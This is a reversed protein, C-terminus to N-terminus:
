TARVRTVPARRDAVYVSGKSDIHGKYLLMEPHQELELNTKILLHRERAIDPSFINVYMVQKGKFLGIYEFCRFMELYETLLDFKWMMYDRVPKPLKKAKSNHNNRKFFM